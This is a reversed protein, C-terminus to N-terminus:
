WCNSHLTFGEFCVDAAIELGCFLRNIRELFRGLDPGWWGRNEMKLNVKGGGRPWKPPQGRVWMKALSTRGFVKARWGAAAGRVRRPRRQVPTHNVALFRLMVSIKPSSRGGARKISVGPGELMSGRTYRARAVGSTPWMSGHNVSIIPSTCTM